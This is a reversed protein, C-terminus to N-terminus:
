KRIPPSFNKKEEEKGEGTVFLNRDFQGLTSHSLTTRQISGGISNPWSRVVVRALPDKASLGPAQARGDDRNLAKRRTVQM